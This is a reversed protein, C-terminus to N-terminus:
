LNSRPKNNSGNSKADPGTAADVTSTGGRVVDATNNTLVQQLRSDLELYRDDSIAKLKGIEHQLQEVLGRLMMVEQQLLQMQYQEEIGTPAQEDEVPPRYSVAGSPATRNEVTRNEVVIPSPRSEASVFLPTVVAAWLVAILVGSLHVSGADERKLYVLDTKM